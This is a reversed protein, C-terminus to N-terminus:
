DKLRRWAAWGIIAAAVVLLLVVKAFGHADEAMPIGGVNMGMLGAVINLPLALVTVVTLIFLSKSTSENVRAAVEEQLLRIREQLAAVDRLVMSFEETAQRMGALDDASIWGPPHQLLRFLAAPEPALLRQLRVFVRRLQGLDARNRRLSGALLSDEIDDVQVTAKRVIQQLEDGQDHMLHILLSMASEFGRGQKVALRLRDISRLPHVRASVMMQEQVTLWLTSIESPQFAFDYAVDNIVAILNDEVNDIRTSRSSDNLADFFGESLQLSSRMWKEALVNSLNFHLWLFQNTRQEDSLRLWELAEASGIHRGASGGTFLYGCILGAIDSGYERDQVPLSVNPQADADDTMAFSPQMM